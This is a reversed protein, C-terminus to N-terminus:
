DGLVDRAHVHVGRFLEPRDKFLARLHKSGDLLERVLVDAFRPNAILLDVYRDLAETTQDAAGEVSELIKTAMEYISELVARYVGKKSGFHYYIMRVNLKTRRAIRDIRAGAFGHAAFEEAAGDLIRARSGERDRTRPAPM